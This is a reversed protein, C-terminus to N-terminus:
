VSECMSDNKIRAWYVRNSLYVRVAFARLSAEDFNPSFWRQPKKGETLPAHTMLLSDHIFFSVNM